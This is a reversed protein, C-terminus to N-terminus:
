ASEAVEKEVHLSQRYENPTLGFESKFARNFPGISGFGSELGVVLITWHRSDPAELLAKAHKVRLSNIFQNFNRASFHSRLTRSVKYEPVDLLHAIDVMKLNARLFLKDQFLIKKLRAILEREDENDQIERPVLPALKEEDNAKREEYAQSIIIGQTVLIIQLASFAVFWPFVTALQEENFFGKAIVTCLTVGTAFSIMFAIRQWRQAGATSSFGRAAEWFSLMLICSSLLNTVEGLSSSLANLQSFPSDALANVMEIGQDLMVLVAIALAVLIHRLFIPQRERFLARSVLWYANCTACTGLGILYQYIGINDSTLHRTAVMVMSGCFIAFVVHVTKKQSVTLQAILATLGVALLASYAYQLGM